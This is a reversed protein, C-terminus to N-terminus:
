VFGATLLKAHTWALLFLLEDYSYTHFQDLFEKHVRMVFDKRGTPAHIIGSTIDDSAWPTALKLVEQCKADFSEFLLTLDDKPKGKWDPNTRLFEEIAQKAIPNTPPRPDPTQESM